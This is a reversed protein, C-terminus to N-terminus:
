EIVEIEYLPVQKDAANREYIIVTKTGAMLEEKAEKNDTGFFQEVMSGAMYSPKNRLQLNTVKYSVNKNFVDYVEKTIVEETAGSLIKDEISPTNKKTIKKKAVAM